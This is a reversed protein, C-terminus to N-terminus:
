VEEGGPGITLIIKDKVCGGGLQQVKDQIGM